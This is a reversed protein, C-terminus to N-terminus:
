WGSSGLELEGLISLASSTAPTQAKPQSPEVAGADSVADSIRDAEGGLPPCIAARCPAFGEKGVEPAPPQTAGGSNFIGGDRDFLLTSENGDADKASIMIMKLKQVVEEGANQRESIFKVETVGSALFLPEVKDDELNHLYADNGDTSVQVKREGNVDVVVLEASGTFTLEIQRLTQIKSGDPGLKDDYVFKVDKIDRALWRGRARPSDQDTVTLDYLYAEKREGLIQVSRSGDLSFFATQDPNTPVTPQTPPAPTPTPEPAPEAPRSPPVVVPPTPDPVVVVGGRSHGYRYYRGSTYVYVVGIDDQWWWRGDHLYVWRNWYPDHWWYRDHSRRTWFYVNDVYLGWWHYGYTDYHHGIRYGNWHYWNYSHDHVNWSNHVHQINNVITTNNIITVHNQAPPLVRGNRDTLPRQTM